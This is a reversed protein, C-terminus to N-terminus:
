VNRHYVPSGETPPPHTKTTVLRHLSDGLHEVVKKIETLFECELLNLKMTNIVRTTWQINNLDLTLEPYRSRPLIHDVSDNVGLILKDGTYVCCYNQSELKDKLMKWHEVSGFRSCSTQKLYCVECLRMMVDPRKDGYISMHPAQGCAACLGRTVLLHSRQRQNDLKQQRCSECRDKNPLKVNQCSGIVCKGMKRRLSRRDRSQTRTKDQCPKCLRKNEAAKRGCETCLGARKRADRRKKNRESWIERCEGCYYKGGSDARCSHCKKTEM